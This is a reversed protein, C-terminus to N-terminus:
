DPSMVLRTHSLIDHWARGQPDVLVWLFGLGLLGASLWSAALRLLADRWGLPGGDERVVRIRWTKMGLTQGGHTWFWLPFGAVILLMVAQLVGHLRPDAGLTDTGGPGMLAGLPVVILTVGLLLLGFVLVADYALAALRRLLGPPDAPIPTNEM